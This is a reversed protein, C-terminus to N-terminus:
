FLLGCDGSVKATNEKAAFDKQEFQGILKKSKSLYHLIKISVKVINMIIEIESSTKQLRDICMNAIQNSIISFNFLVLAEMPTMHWAKLMTKFSEEYKMSSYQAVGILSLLHSCHYHAFLPNTPVTKLVSLYLREAEVYRKETMYVNALNIETDECHKLNAQRIKSFIERAAETEGKTACVVGLGNAAFANRVHDTLVPHYFKYSTRLQGEDTRKLSYIHYWYNGMALM